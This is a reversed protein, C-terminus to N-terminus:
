VTGSLSARFIVKFLSSVNETDEEESMFEPLQVLDTTVTNDVCHVHTQAFEWLAFSLSAQCAEIWPIM